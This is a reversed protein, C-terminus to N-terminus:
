SGPPLDNIESKIDFLRGHRNWAKLVLEIASVFENKNEETSSFEIHYKHRPLNNEENM